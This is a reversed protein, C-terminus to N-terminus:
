LNDAQDIRPGDAPAARVPRSGLRGVANAVASAYSYGTAHVTRRVRASSYGFPYALSPVARSIGDELLAKSTALEGELRGQKLQDLQPHTHSHAGIEMGAAVAERIQTWCLM